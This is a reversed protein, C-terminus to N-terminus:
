LWNKCSNRNHKKTLKDTYLTPKLENEGITHNKRHSIFKPIIHSVNFRAEIRRNKQCKM